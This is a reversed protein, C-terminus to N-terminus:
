RGDSGRRAARRRVTVSRGGEGVAARQIEEITAGNMRFVSVRSGIEEPVHADSGWILTGHQTGEPLCEGDAEILPFELGEPFFGLQAVL